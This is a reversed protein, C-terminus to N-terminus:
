YDVRVLTLGKAAATAGALSRDRRRFIEEIDEPRLRGRGVELLTGVITRVMYRLFGEAEITYVLEAGTRRLESRRVTRIPSRDRNSSFATFDATRVFLRAARRMAGVKLPYPWHLVFRRDLPSPQPAWAIRYRYVKSRASKRAHFGPPAEALSFIRVDEPLVANLARLLVEDTLKFAGRFSAAQGLAHVGADTRGAGHVVVKKQTVKRLADEVVGQVTRAAPQRQWGKFDTGDYGLVIRYNKM